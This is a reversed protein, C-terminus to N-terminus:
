ILISSFLRGWEWDGIRRSKCVVAFQHCTARRFGRAFILIDPELQWITVFESGWHYIRATPRANRLYKSWQKQCWMQQLIPLRTMAPNGEPGVLSYDRDRNCSTSHRLRPLNHRAVPVTVYNKDINRKQNKMDNVSACSAQLGYFRVKVILTTSIDHRIQHVQRVTHVRNRNLGLRWFRYVALQAGM